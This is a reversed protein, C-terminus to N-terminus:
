IKKNQTPQKNFYLKFVQVYNEWIQKIMVHVLNDVVWSLFFRHMLQEMKLWKWVSYLVEPPVVLEEKSGETETSRMGRSSAKGGVGM